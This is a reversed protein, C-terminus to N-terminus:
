NSAIYDKIMDTTFSNESDTAKTYRLTVIGTLDSRDIGTQCRIEQRTAWCATNYQSGGTAACNMPQFTGTTADIGIGEVSCIVDIDAINHAVALMTANPLKGFNVTKEYLPKGDIWCGVVRENESYMTPMMYNTNQRVMFYTPEYKICYLVSTNTPRSTYSAYETSLKASTSSGYKLTSDEKKNSDINKYVELIEGDTITNQYRAGFNNGGGQIIPAETADQHEGVSGGSGQNEHSNTGTGRLFEGRLDPVAFTTTGDGGFYNVTGFNDIMHQALYPYDAINYESGDCILYHKPAITGMHSIIHGVPADEVGQSENVHELPDITIQRNIEQVTMTVYPPRLTDTIDTADVYLGIECDKDTDNTYQGFQTFDHEYSLNTQNHYPLVDAINVDNTYDKIYYHILAPTSAGEYAFSVNIQIRQGPKVVVRGDKVEFSGSEKIFPVYEGVVPTYANTVKCFCSDLETNVYKQYKKIPLLDDQIKEIVGSKDEVYIAGKSDLTIANNEKESVSIQKKDIYEKIVKNQVPNTSTESMVDDVTISASGSGQGIASIGTDVGGIYWNGNDGITPTEGDKGKEGKVENGDFLLNGDDSESLKNLVDLNAHEAKENVENIADVIVKSTTDLNAVDGINGSLMDFVTQLVYTQNATESTLYDSLDITTEGIRTAGNVDDLIYMDYSNSSNAILYIYKYDTVSETSDVVKYSAASAKAIESLTFEKSTAIANQISQYIYSSSNTKDIRVSSDDIIQSLGELEETSLGLLQEITTVDLVEIEEDLVYKEDSDVTNTYKALEDTFTETKVYGSLDVEEGGLQAEAIKDTVFTETALGDTSPITPKNKIFADSTEDTENWDSQVNEEAKDYKEKLEDTLDNTSLGKDDLKEVYNTLDTPAVYIGDDKSIIQNDEIESVKTESVSPVYLGDDKSSLANGEENSIKVSMDKVYIGDQKQEIQNDTESSVKVSNPAEIPTVIGDAGIGLIKNADAVNQQVDIKKDLQEKVVTSYGAFQKSLYEKNVLDGM